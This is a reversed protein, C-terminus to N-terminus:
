QLMFLTAQAEHPFIDISVVRYRVGGTWIEDGVQLNTGCAFAMTYYQPSVAGQVSGDDRGQVARTTQAIRVQLTGVATETGDVMRWVTAGVFNDGAITGMTAAMLGANLVGPM